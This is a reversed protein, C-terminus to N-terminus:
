LTLVPPKVAQSQVTSGVVILIPNDAKIVSLPQHRMDNCRRELYGLSCVVGAVMLPVGITAREVAIGAIGGGILLVAAVMFILALRKM